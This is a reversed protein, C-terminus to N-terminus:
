SRRRMARSRPVAIRTATTRGRVTEAGTITWHCVGAPDATELLAGADILLDPTRNALETLRAAENVPDGIVAYEFRNAAGICGTPASRGPWCRRRGSAVSM